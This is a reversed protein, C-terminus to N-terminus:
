SISFDVSAGRFIDDYPSEEHIYRKLNYQALHNEVVKHPDHRKFKIDVLKVDELAVVEVKTHGFDLLTFIGVQIHFTPWVKKQTEKLEKTIGTAVTQYSVERCVLKYPSFQPLSHSPFSFGFVRVCSFNEEIYWDASTRLNEM